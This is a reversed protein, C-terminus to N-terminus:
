LDPSLRLRLLQAHESAGLVARQARLRHSGLGPPVGRDHQGKGLGGAWELQQHARRACGLGVEDIELRDAHVHGAAPPPIVRLERDLGDEDRRIVPPPPELPAPAKHDTALDDTGIAARHGSGGDARIVDVPPEPPGARLLEATGRRIHVAREFDVERPAAPEPGPPPPAVADPLDGGVQDGPDLAVSSCSGRM